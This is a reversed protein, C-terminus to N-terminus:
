RRLFEPSALLLALGARRSSAHQVALLTDPRLLGGLSDQAIAVPDAAAARGSVAMAWDARRLLLEGDSWAAATDPWGNPLPPAMFPQGLANLVPLLEPRNGEGLGLARLVAVAYDWPTRLKTLGQWAAPLRVVARAAAALDGNSDRLVAAIAEVQEPAPEDAVFHRVLKGALRRFTAPHNGLWRLAALGGAEGPPFTMGM